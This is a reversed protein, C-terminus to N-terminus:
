KEYLSYFIKLNWNWKTFGVAQSSLEWYYEYCYWKWQKKSSNSTGYGHWSNPLHIAKLLDWLLYASSRQADRIVCSANHASQIRILGQKNWGLRLTTIWSLDNIEVTVKSSDECLTPSMPLVCPSGMDPWTFNEEGMIGHEWICATM